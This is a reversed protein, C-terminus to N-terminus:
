LRCSRHPNATAWKTEKVEFQTGRKQQWNRNHSVCLPIIFIGNRGKIRVHAGDSADESCRMRACKKQRSGSVERWHSIWSNGVCKCLSLKWESPHGEHSVISGSKLIGSKSRPTGCSMPGHGENGCVVCNRKRLKAKKGTKKTIKGSKQPSNHAAVGCKGAQKRCKGRGRPKGCQCVSCFGYTQNVKRIPKRCKNCNAM